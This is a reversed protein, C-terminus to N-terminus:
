KWSKVLSCIMINSTKGSSSRPDVAWSRLFSYFFPMWMVGMAMIGDINISANCILLCPFCFFVCINYHNLVFPRRGSRLGRGQPVGADVVSRRQTFVLGKRKAWTAESKQLWFDFEGLFDLYPRIVRRSPHSLRGFVM